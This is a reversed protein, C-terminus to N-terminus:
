QDAYPDNTYGRASLHHTWRDLIWRWGKQFWSWSGVRRVVWPSTKYYMRIFVRGWARRGLYEDRFRRLVWVEPRDYSGYVCTAIYCGQSSSRTTYGGTLNKYSDGKKNFKSDYHNYGGILNQYSQGTKHGKEDYHNYGGTLNRYSQGTKHGKEDYHNYGGFLNPYSTGTKHGKEDYHNYGGTLNKYTRSKNSM